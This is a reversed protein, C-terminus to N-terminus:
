RHVPKHQLWHDFWNYALNRSAAPFEHACDPYHAALRGSAGLLKYVLEAATICDKVGSVEFNDDHIPAIALFPRPALASVVDPFDFPMRYPDKGFITAIRPMYGRHSWGTLDGGFYKRFSNFGCNSVMAKVRKDFAGLFLTNHGGLSHGICGIRRGDVEPLSQLLDIARMHNWIGKMTASAYGHAYPDYTYEGFNPYDPALTVYGRAALHAAYHLSPEGDVGAPEAKGVATSPHLCLIAPAKRTLSHPILLYAPVRDDLESIFTIKKRTFEPLREEGEIHVELPILNKRAPLPGMVQQMNTLIQKRRKAWDTPSNVPHVQGRRNTSTLLTSHDNHVTNKMNADGSITLFEYNFLFIDELFFQNM